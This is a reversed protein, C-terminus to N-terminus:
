SHLNQAMTGCFSWSQCAIQELCWVSGNCCCRPLVTSVSSGFSSYGKTYKIEYINNKHQIRLLILRWRFSEDFWNHTVTVHEQLINLVNNESFKFKKNWSNKTWSKRIKFCTWSPKSRAGQINSPASPTSSTSPPSPYITRFASGEVVRVLSMLGSYMSCEVWM